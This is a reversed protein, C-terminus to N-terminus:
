IGFFFRELFIDFKPIFKLKHDAYIIRTQNALQILYGISSYLLLFVDFIFILIIKEALM